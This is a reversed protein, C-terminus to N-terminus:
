NEELLLAIQICFVQDPCKKISNLLSASRSRLNRSVGVGRPGAVNEFFVGGLCTRLWNPDGQPRPPPTKSRAAPKPPSLYLVLLVLSLNIYPNTKKCILFIYNEMKVLTQVYTCHLDLNQKTTTPTVPKVWFVANNDLKVMCEAYQVMSHLRARCGQLISLKKRGYAPMCCQM